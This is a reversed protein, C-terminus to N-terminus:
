ASADIGAELEPLLAKLISLSERVLMRDREISPDKSGHILNCRVQYLVAGVAALRGRPTEKPNRYMAAFRRSAARFKPGYRDLLMNGPPIELIRDVSARCQRLVRWAAKDTTYRRIASTVRSREKRDPEGGYISNFAMWLSGFEKWDRPSVTRLRWSLQARLLPSAITM